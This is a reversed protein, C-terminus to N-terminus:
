YSRGNKKNEDNTLNNKIVKKAKDSITLVTAILSLNVSDEEEETVEGNEIRDNLAKYVKLLQDSSLTSYQKLYEYFEPIRILKAVTEEELVVFLKEVKKIYEKEEM